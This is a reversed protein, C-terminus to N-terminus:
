FGLKSKFVDFKYKQASIYNSQGFLKTLKKSYWNMTNTLNKDGDLRGLFSYHLHAYLAIGRNYIYEGSRGYHSAVSPIVLKAMVFPFYAYHSVFGLNWASYLNAWKPALPLDLLIGRSNYEPYESWSATGHGTIPSLVTNYNPGYDALVKGASANYFNGNKVDLAVAELINVPLMINLFGGPLDRSEHFSVIKKIPAEVSKLKAVDFLELEDDLGENARAEQWINMCTRLLKWENRMANTLRELSIAYAVVNSLVEVGESELKSKLLPFNSKSAKEFLDMLYSNQYAALTMKNIFEGLKEQTMDAPALTSDLEKLESRVWLGSQDILRMQKYQKKILKKMQDPDLHKVSQKTISAISLLAKKGSAWINFSLFLTLFIGFIKM